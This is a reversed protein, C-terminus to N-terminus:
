AVCFAFGLLGFVVFHFGSIWWALVWWIDFLLCEFLDVFGCILCTFCRFEFSAVGVPFLECVWLGGGVLVSPSHVIVRWGFFWFPFVWFGFGFLLWYYVGSFWGCM